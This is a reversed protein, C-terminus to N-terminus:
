IRGSLFGTVFCFVWLCAVMISNVENFYEPTM